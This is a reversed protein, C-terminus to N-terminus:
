HYDVIEVQEADGRQWVFCIRRQDNIRVSHTAGQSREELSGVPQFATSAFGSAYHGRICRRPHIFTLLTLM